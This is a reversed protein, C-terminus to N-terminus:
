YLENGFDDTPMLPLDEIEPFDDEPGLPPQQRLWDIVEALTPKSRPEIVLRDGEKRMVADEGPLEFERPIRVAQNRGNRFLKVIREANM